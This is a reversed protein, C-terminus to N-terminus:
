LHFFLNIQKGEEVVTELAALMWRTPSAIIEVAVLPVVTVRDIM